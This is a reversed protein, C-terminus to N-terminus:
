PGSVVTSPKESVCVLRCQWVFGMIARCGVMDSLQSHGWMASSFDVKLNSKTKNQSDQVWM